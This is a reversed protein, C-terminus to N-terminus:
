VGKVPIKRQRAGPVSVPLEEGTMFKKAAASLTLCYLDEARLEEELYSFVKPPLLSDAESMKSLFPVSSKQRISAMLPAADRSLALPRAYLIMGAAQLANLRDQRIQLLIHLLSRSVRTRTLNKTKILSCFASFGSYSGLLKRIRIALDPSVDLFSELDNEQMKLAYMLQGSFDDPSVPFVPVQRVSTQLIPHEHSLLENRDSLLGSRLETAAPAEIRPIAHPRIPSDTLLLARCYELGLLDNPTSPYQFQDGEFLGQLAAERAAPFPKGDKLEEQLKVRYKVATDSYDNREAINLLEACHLLNALDGSESGFCLDTVVGLKEFLTIGGRAFYEASGCAAYLPIELVLDAGAQLIQDARIYKDFVAPEGRQVFDGSMAVVIHDAQTLRRAERLIYAHGQHFPNCEMIIGTVKM